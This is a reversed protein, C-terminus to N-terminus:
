YANPPDLWSPDINWRGDTYFECRQQGAANWLCDFVPKLEARPDALSDNFVV